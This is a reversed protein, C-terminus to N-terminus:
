FTCIRGSHTQTETNIKRIVANEIVPKNLIKSIGSALIGAQNYGRKKFRKANLPLPVIIDIDDFRKSDAILQGMLKGLYLGLDKNGRYKLDYVISEVLSNKTFFYAAGSNQVPIRGYFKEEVPNGAKKFFNTKPLQSICRLCLYHKTNIIDSGCGSCVHPFFLHLLDNVIPQIGVM